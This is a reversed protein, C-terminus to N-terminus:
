VVDGVINEPLSGANSLILFPDDRGIIRGVTEKILPGTADQEIGLTPCCIAEPM